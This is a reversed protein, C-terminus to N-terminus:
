FKSVLWWLPKMPYAQEYAWLNKKKLSFFGYKRGMNLAFRLKKQLEKRYSDDAQLLQEYSAYLYQEAAKKLLNLHGEQRAFEIQQEFAELMHMRGPNWAVRMIGAPNQYYAYIQACTIAIQDCQYIMKYTTFEDEHLKGVPYRLSQFLQKDYLKNWAVATLGEHFQGCYYGDSSLCFSSLDQNAPIKEGSTRFIGCASIKCGNEWLAHYLTNLYEQHVWDDSDVFALYRSDSHAFAWDIGANRAASLGGNKQHIVHVFSYKVGYADCIEGCRDPSGDDVLVIEFDRYTQALISEVCRDLYAEVKYVPVIVSINPM